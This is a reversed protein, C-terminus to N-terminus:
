PQLLISGANTKGLFFGGANTINQLVAGNGLITAKGAGNGFKITLLGTKPDISGTLLNTPSGPLKALTNNNSVAVSFSLPSLLTGGTVNLQGAALDIAATHALPNTWLSGQVTLLNTFGNTYLATARTAKKIWELYGSPAGGAINVWGLLLGTNGYLNDYVPIDGTEAVPVTQSAATLSTGDSLAGSLTFVGAHNTILVYGYGPPLGPGFAEPLLLMTYEASGNNTARNAVLNAVWPSGNAGSITGTIQPPDGWNLIMEVDLAGGQKSTRPINISAQGYVNFGGSIDYRRGAILLTGSYTGMPGLNLSRLMGATEETVSNTTFFLGNYIGHPGVFPSPIFSAQLAMNSQMLFTLPNATASISGTWNSFVQGKGAIATVTYDEGINLSQGSLNPTIRGNGNTSLTIPSTIIYLFKVKNTLSDNGNADVAYASVSNTGPSLTVGASWNSTGAALAWGNSNIQYWTEVIGRNGRATGSVTFLANGLKQNTKPSSITLTPRASNQAVNYTGSLVQEIGSNMDLSGTLSYVGPLLDGRLIFTLIKGHSGNVSFQQSDSRIKSGSSDMLSITLSGTQIADTLNTVAVKMSTDMGFVGTPISGSVKVPFAGNFTPTVSQLALTNADADAFTLAPPPLNTQVGPTAALTFMFTDDIVGNTVLTNTWVISSNGVAGDTNVVTIGVPLSQTVTALLPIAFPNAVLIHAQYTENNPNQLIYCKIPNEFTFTNDPATEGFPHMKSNSTIEASTTWQLTTQQEGIKYTDQNNDGNRGLVYITVQSGTDPLGGNVGDFYPVSITVTQDKDVNVIKSIVIPLTLSADHIILLSNLNITHQYIAFVEFVAAQQSTNLITVLSNAGLVANGGVLPTTVPDAGTWTGNMNYQSGTLQSTVSMTGTVPNPARAQSISNFASADNLYIQHSYTSCSLLSAVAMDYSKQDVNLNNKTVSSDILSEGINLTEGVAVCGEVGGIPATIMFGGIDGFVDIVTFLNDVIDNHIFDSNNKMGSLLTDEYILILKLVENAQSRSQLDSAYTAALNESMAPVGMLLTQEQQLLAAQYVGNNNAITQGEKSLGTSNEALAELANPLIDKFGADTALTNAIDGILKGGCDLAQLGGIGTALANVGQESKDSKAQEQFYDGSLGEDVALNGIYPLDNGADAVFQVIANNLDTGPAVLTSTFKIQPQQQVTVSDTTDEVWITSTGSSTSKYTATAQGDADTPNAPQLITCGALSSNFRVTKGSVPNNNSNRLAVTATVTTQGDAPVSSATVTLTSLSASVSPVAVSTSFTLDNGDGTGGSSTAVIRFHYLTNPSLGTIATAYTGSTTGINGSTSTSGYSTTLGYDFHITTSLGNPNVTSNLTAGSSTVLTAAQTTATPANASTSTTFTLDNGDGTGGSSTAM